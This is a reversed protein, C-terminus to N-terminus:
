RRQQDPEAGVLHDVAVQGDPLQDAEQAVRQEHDVRDLGEELEGLLDGARHDRGALRDRDELVLRRPGVELRARRQGVVGVQVVLEAAEGGVVALQGDHDRGHGLVGGRQGVPQTAVQRGVGLRHALLEGLPQLSPCGPAGAGLPQGLARPECGQVLLEGVALPADAEAADVEARGRQVVYAPVIRTLSVPLWSNAPM